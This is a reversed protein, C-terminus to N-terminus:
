SPAVSSASTASCPRELLETTELVSGEAQRDFEQKPAPTEAFRAFNVM